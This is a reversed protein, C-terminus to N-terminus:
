FRAILKFKEQDAHRPDCHVDLITSGDAFVFSRAYSDEDSEWVEKLQSLKYGEGGHLYSPVLVDVRELRNRQDTQAFARLVHQIDSFMLTRGIRQGENEIQFSMLFYPIFFPLEIWQWTREGDMTLISPLLLEADPRTRFM